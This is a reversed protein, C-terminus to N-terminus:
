RQGPLVPQAGRAEVPRLVVPRAVPRLGIEIKGAPFFAGPQVGHAHAPERDDAPGLTAAPKRGAMAIGHRPEMDGPAGAGAHQRGEQPPRLIKAGGLRQKETEAVPHIAQDDFVTRNDTRM